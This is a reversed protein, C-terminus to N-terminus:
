QVKMGASAADEKIRKPRKKLIKHVLRPKQPPRNNELRMKLEQMSINSGQKIM